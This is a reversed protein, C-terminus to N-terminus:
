RSRRPVVPRKVRTQSLADTLRCNQDLNRPPRATTNREHARPSDIQVAMPLGGASVLNSPHEVFHAVGYEDFTFIEVVCSSFQALCRISGIGQM